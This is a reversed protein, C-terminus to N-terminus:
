YLPKSGGSRVKLEEAKVVDENVVTVDKGSVVAVLKVLTAWQDSTTHLSAMIAQQQQLSFCLM